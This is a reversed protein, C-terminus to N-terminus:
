RPTARPGHDLRHGCGVGDEFARRAVLKIIGRVLAPVLGRADEHDAVGAGASMVLRRVGYARMGDIINRTGNTYPEGMEKPSVGLLSIVADAGSPEAAVAERDLADGEVVEVNPGTVQLKEPSRVFARLRHGARLIEQSLIQGTKGTAGFVVITM